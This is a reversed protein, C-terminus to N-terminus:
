LSSWPSSFATGLGDHGLSSAGHFDDTCGSLLGWTCLHVRHSAGTHSESESAWLCRTSEVIMDHQCAELGNSGQEVSTLMWLAAHVANLNRRLVLHGGNATVRQRVHCAFPMSPSRTWRCGSILASRTWSLAPSTFSRWFISSNSVPLRILASCCSCFNFSAFFLPPNNCHMM